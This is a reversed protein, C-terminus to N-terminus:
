SIEYPFLKPQRDSAHESREQRINGNDQLRHFDRQTQCRQTHPLGAPFIWRVRGHQASNSYFWQACGPFAMARVKGQYTREGIFVVGRLACGDCPM